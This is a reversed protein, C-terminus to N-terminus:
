FRGLKYLKKLCDAYAKIQKEKSYENAIDRSLAKLRKRLNDDSFYSVIKRRLEDADYPDFTYLRKGFRETIDRNIALRSLLLGCGFYAAEIMTANFSEWVSPLVYLDALAYYYGLEEESVRGPMIIRGDSKSMNLYLSMSKGEGAIVLRFENGKIGQFALILTSINKQAESLRGLYLITKTANPLKLRKKLNKLKARSIKLNEMLVSSHIIAVNPNLREIKDKQEKNLAIVGDFFRFFSEQSANLGKYMGTGFTLSLANYDFANKYEGSANAHEIYIIKAKGLLRKIRKLVVYDQISSALIIDPKIREIWKEAGELYVGTLSYISYYAIRGPISEAIGNLGLRHLIKRASAQVKVKGGSLTFARKSPNIYPNGYGLYYTEIGHEELGNFLSGAVRAGGGLSVGAKASTDIILVKM